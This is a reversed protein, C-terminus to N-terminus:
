RIDEYLQSLYPDNRDVLPLHNHHNTFYRESTPVIHWFIRGFTCKLPM